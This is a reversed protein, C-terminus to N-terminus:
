VSISYLRDRNVQATSSPALRVEPSTQLNLTKPGILAGAIYKMYTRLFVKLDQLVLHVNTTNNHRKAAQVRITNKILFHGHLTCRQRDLRSREGVGQM